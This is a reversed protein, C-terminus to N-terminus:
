DGVIEKEEIVQYSTINEYVKFFINMDITSDNIIFKLKKQELIKSDEPLMKLLKKKAVEIGKDIAEEPTYIDDKKDTEIITNLSLKFPLFKHYILKNEIIEFNDYKDYDFFIFVNNFLTLTLKKKQRGTYTKEYYTIPYSVHVTYWTEGYITGKAKILDVIKDKHTIEGSVIVEGAKVYDNLKKVISGNTADIKLIIANKSAVINRPTNDEDLSNIIRKEVDVVYKTGIKTIELWEIKDKNNKLIKEKIKEKETFNKQFSYVKLGEKELENLLLKKLDSDTTKIEIKFIFNSLLIILFIGILFSIIIINNKKFLLKYKILGDYGVIEIKYINKYKLIKQYNSEDLTLYYYNNQKVVKLMKINYKLLKNFYKAEIRVKYSNM